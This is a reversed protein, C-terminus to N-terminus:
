HVGDSCADDDNGARYTEADHPSSCVDLPIQKMKRDCCEPIESKANVAVEKGCKECRYKVMGM